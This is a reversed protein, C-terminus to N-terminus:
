VCSHQPTMSPDTFLTLLGSYRADFLKNAIDHRLDKIRSVDM